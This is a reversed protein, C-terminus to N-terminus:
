VYDSVIYIGCRVEFWVKPFSMGKSVRTTQYSVKKISKPTCTWVLAIAKMGISSPNEPPFLNWWFTMWPTSELCNVLRYWKRRNSHTKREEFFNSEYISNVWCYISGLKPIFLGHRLRCTTYFTAIPYQVLRALPETDGLTSNLSKRCAALPNEICANSIRSSSAQLHWIPLYFFASWRPKFSIHIYKYGLFIVLRM